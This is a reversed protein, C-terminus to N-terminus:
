LYIAKEIGLIAFGSISRINPVATLQTHCFFFLHLILTTSIRDSRLIHPTDRFCLHLFLSTLSRHPKSSSTTVPASLPIHGGSLLGDGGGMSGGDGFHAASLGLLFLTDSPIPFSYPRRVHASPRPLRVGSRESAPRSLVAVERRYETNFQGLDLIQMFCNISAPSALPTGLDYWTSIM